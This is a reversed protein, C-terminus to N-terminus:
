DKILKHCEVRWDSKLQFLYVGSVLNSLDISFERASAIEKTYIVKGSIDLIKMQLRGSLQDSKFQVFLQNRVPNPFLNVMQNEEGLVLEQNGVLFQTPLALSIEKSNGNKDALYASTWEPRMPVQDGQVMSEWDQDTLRTFNRTVKKYYSMFAGVYAMPTDYGPRNVLVVGQNIKGVGAHLVKGVTAGASDTPQTHLDVIVFDDKIMDDPVYFLTTIWGSYPPAGSMTSEFLMQKLWTAEDESFPQNNLEKEALGQLKQMTEGFSEFYSKIAGAFYTTTQLQSFFTGAEAAYTAMAGFFEPYPEVYSYPYSCGTGGTYSPKAYLLNDHRLQAYSALQTNMKEQHWAGTRIFFPLNDSDVTPNLKTLGVLWVNYLSETWFDDEKQDILYHMQALQPGYHYTEVESQLFHLADSNGLCFLVDLPDPMLRMEKKGNFIIRDYVMNALVESDIIFRQGSVRYSVPLEGPAEAGPDVLFIGGMIKQAFNEDAKLGEYYDAYVTSDNLQDASTISKSALFDTYEKPTINDSEGVLYDIITENTQLLDLKSSGQMLENLLYASLNMHEIEEPSWPTEWPNEPPPTLFFDIRGLWMMARFYPELSKGFMAQDQQTYVYHGRVKFQSFDIGRKRVGIAFLPVNAAALDSIAQLILKGLDSDAYRFPQETDTILSYAITVYLDVDQINSSFNEGYKTQLDPLQDYLDKLFAELNDSMMDMELSKLIFDYSTHLAHLIFDTSIFVPLDKSYIDHYAHGFNLYSLRETVFFHNDKLLALEDSTLDLKEIISDLYLVNDFSPSNNYGKYYAEGPRPYLNKLQDFTLNQTENRFTYYMEANFQASSVIAILLLLTLLPIKM